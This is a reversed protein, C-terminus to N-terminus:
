PRSLGQIQGFNFLIRSFVQIELQGVVVDELKVAM